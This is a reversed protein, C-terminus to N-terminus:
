GAIKIFIVQFYCPFASEPLGIKFSERPLGVRLGRILPTVGRMSEGERSKRRVIYAKPM